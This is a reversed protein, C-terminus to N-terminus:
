VPGIESAARVGSEIAGEIYGQFNPSTHEGAFHIRGEPLGESGAITTYQGIRWYSYAGRSWPNAHWFSQWARRPGRQWASRTGPFVRELRTLAREVEAETAPRFPAGPLTEGQEAGLFDVVLPNPALDQSSGDWVTEFGTPGSYSVGNYGLAVWPRDALQLQVKANNGMGLTAIAQRKRASLDVRELDVERLLTFPIALVVHDAVVDKTSAGVDFTAVLRHDSRATMAVLRHGVRVSGAGGPLQSVMAAVLADSGEAIHYREDTGALPDLSSAPNSALLGVLNIASQNGPDGGYESIVNSLMLQGFRGATGGEIHADIWEPVSQHDLKTGAPTQHDFRQNGGDRAAVVFAPRNLRWDVSAEAYSYRAGDVWYVEPGKPQAGGLVSQLTLGFRHCLTRVATHESSIFAGGQEAIRGGAFFDRLTWTRGGIRDPNGEYVDARIGHVTWLVHACRIGAAGAGVIVVKPDSRARKPRLLQPRAVVLAGAGAGTRLFERRTLTRGTAM